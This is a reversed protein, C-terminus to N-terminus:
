PRAMTGSKLLKSRPDFPGKIYILDAPIATHLILQAQPYASPARDDLAGQGTVGPGFIAIGEEPLVSVGLFLPKKIWIL